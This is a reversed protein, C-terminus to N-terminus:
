SDCQSYDHWQNAISIITDAPKDDNGALSM